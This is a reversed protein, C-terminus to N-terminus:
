VREMRRLEERDFLAITDEYRGALNLADGVDVRPEIRRAPDATKWACPPKMSDSSARQSGAGGSGRPQHREPLPPRAREIEDLALANENPTLLTAISLSWYSAAPGPNATRSLRAGGDIARAVGGSRPPHGAPLARLLGVSFPQFM